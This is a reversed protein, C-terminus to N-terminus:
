QALLYHRRYSTVARHRVEDQHTTLVKQHFRLSAKTAHFILEGRWLTLRWPRKM